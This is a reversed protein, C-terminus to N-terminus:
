LGRALVRELLSEIDLGPANEAIPQLRGDILLMALGHAMSWRAIATTLHAQGIEVSPPAQGGEEMLLAFAGAGAAALAPRSWDLLASRFMLQFLGPATARSGSMVAAFDSFATERIPTPM